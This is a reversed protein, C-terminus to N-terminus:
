DSQYLTGEGGEGGTGGLGFFHVTVPVPPVHQEEEELRFDYVTGEGNNDRSSSSICVYMSCILMYLESERGKKKGGAFSACRGRCKGYGHKTM